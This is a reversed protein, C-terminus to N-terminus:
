AVWGIRAVRSLIIGNQAVKTHQPTGARFRIGGVAAWHFGGAALRGLGPASCDIWSTLWAKKRIVGDVDHSSAPHVEVYAVGDPRNEYGYGLAYDWRADNPYRVALSADLDVSGRWRCQTTRLRMASRHEGKLAQLGNCFVVAIERTARVAAEFTM